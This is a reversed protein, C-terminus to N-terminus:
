FALAKDSFILCVNTDHKCGHRAHLNNGRTNLSWGADRELGFILSNPM